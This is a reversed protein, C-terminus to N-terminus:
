RLLTFSITLSLVFLHRFLDLKLLDRPPILVRQTTLTRRAPSSTLGEDSSGLNDSFPLPLGRSSALNSIGSTRNSPCAGQYPKLKCCQTRKCSKYPNNTSYARHHQQPSCRAKRLYGVKRGLVTNPVSTRVPMTPLASSRRQGLRFLRVVSSFRLTM